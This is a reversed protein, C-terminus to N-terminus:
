LLKHKINLEIEACTGVTIVNNQEAYINYGIIVFM